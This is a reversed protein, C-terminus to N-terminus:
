GLEYRFHNICNEWIAMRENFLKRGTRTKLLFQREKTKTFYVDNRELARMYSPQDANATVMADWVLTTVGKEDLLDADMVILNEIPLNEFPIDRKNHTQVASSVRSTVSQTFGKSLLYKEALEAGLLAHDAQDNWGTDHFIVALSIIEIEGGEIEHIREAWKLVRLTHDFRNRFPQSFRSQNEILLQAQKLAQEKLIDFNTWKMRYGMASFWKDFCDDITVAWRCAARGAHEKRLVSLYSTPAVGGFTHAFTRV